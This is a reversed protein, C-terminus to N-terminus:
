KVGKASNMLKLLEQISSFSTSVNRYIFTNEKAINIQYISKQVNLQKKSIPYSLVTYNRERLENSISISETIYGSSYEIKIDAPMRESVIDSTAAKILSEVECAFGIAPLEAGFENGLKNYRGGMLVPKGFEGVFGQFIIDSYYGM